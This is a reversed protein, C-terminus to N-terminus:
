QVVADIRSTYGKNESPTVEGLRQSGTIKNRGQGHKKLNSM